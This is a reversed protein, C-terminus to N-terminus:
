KALTADLYSIYAAILQYSQYYDDLKMASITDKSSHLIPLTKTTLSHITIAPIKKDRFQESDTSGVGDVNMGTVPLALLRAVEGIAITLKKDAHSVWVESPGLGLTDMNVMAHINEAQEKSLQKVYFHSGAEGVEEDTFGIFVITHKRKKDKLSEVLSPLLSAGSWNDVIGMGEHVKDFHAGVIIQSAEDGPITYSIQCEALCSFILLASFIKLKM